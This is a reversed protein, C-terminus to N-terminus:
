AQDTLTHNLRETLATLVEIVAELGGAHINKYVAQESIGLGDAISHVPESRMLGHLIALRNVQWKQMRQSVLRLSSNALSADSDPLGEIRFLDDGTKLREIGDRAAYFAPGDMGLAQERNLDTSIDGVGLSCRVHTPHLVTMLRILDRFVRDAGDYVAQFEDGLTLTYPAVLDNTDANLTTLESALRHQLGQRDTIRRSAVVDAILVLYPM